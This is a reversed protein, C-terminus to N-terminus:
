KQAKVMVEHIFPSYRRSANSDGNNTPPMLTLQTIIPNPLQMENKLRENEAKLVDSEALLNIVDQEDYTGKSLKSIWEDTSDPIDSNM